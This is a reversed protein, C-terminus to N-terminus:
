NRISRTACGTALCISAWVRQARDCHGSLARAEARQLPREARRRADQGVLDRPPQAGLGLYSLAAEALIAIAFQITAQVILAPAINPLVHDIAIAIPGRGAARAALAYERSLVGNATARTLKAIIPVNYVGIAIIANVVGPGFTSTLMIALLLAPFAFVFDSLKMLGDEVLGKSFAAISASSSASRRSRDRGRDRRGSNLRSLWRSDAFRRRTRSQRDRVLAGRFPARAQPSHRDRTPPYPTWILSLAAAAILTAVLAAGLWLSLGGRPRFRASVTVGRLGEAESRDRRLRPRRHLEARDRDYGAADGWERGGIHRPQLDVAAHPPRPRAPRVRERGRDRGRDSQRIAAGHHHPHADAREALAHRWLAARRSVGKARATRMFDENLAEIVASRTVRTVIAAQVVGLAIAPFSSRASRGRRSAALRSIRGRPRAELTVAFVLVLLIALWFNPVAIGIQSFGMVIADGARGRRDAAYVGAALGIIAALAMAMLALPASVALSSAILPGIPSGYAYSLGLDGHLAGGIWRAYRIPAPLDLGLKHSLAAVAEPTATPGLMTQAADGPLIQMVAFVVLSAFLLTAVFLAIRQGLYLLMAQASARGAGAHFDDDRPAFRARRDLPGARMVDLSGGALGAAARM